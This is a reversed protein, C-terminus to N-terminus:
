EEEIVIDRGALFGFFLLMMAIGSLFMLPIIWGGTLDHIGGFIVPGCAALLYGFSQAMGSLESAEYGDKTRLTFFMMSLSFGSGCAIGFLVVSLIILSTQGSLFGLTALLFFLGTLVSLWKQNNMKGAIIPMMFTVPILSFQMLSLMWGAEDLRYGSVQLIEPLWTLITYFMLSQLGMFITVQWATMSKWMNIKKREGEEAFTAVHKKKEIHPFWLVAAIVALISWAALAGQWGFSGINALPISIGSALAGFINMCVAYLGTTIGIRFPFSMKIFGPILVNGFSIAIGVIATGIFLPAIGTVSRLGIGAVLLLMSIFIMRELGFKNALKPAFPSILAFAILPLTTISGVVTHSVDLHERISPILPGV